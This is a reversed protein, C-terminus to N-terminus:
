GLGLRGKIFGYVKNFADVRKNQAQTADTAAEINAEIDNKEPLSITELKEKIDSLTMGQIQMKLQGIKSENLTKQLPPLGELAQELEEIKEDLEQKTM